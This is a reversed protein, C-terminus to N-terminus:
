KHFDFHEKLQVTKPLVRYRQFFNDQLDREVAGFTNLVKNRFQKFQHETGISMEGFDLVEKRLAGLIAQLLYKQQEASIDDLTPSNM